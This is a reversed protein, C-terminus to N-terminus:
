AKTPLTLHTYSVAIVIFENKQSLSVSNSLGEIKAGLVYDARKSNDKLVHLIMSSITTKGHSGAIVVRTKNKSYEFIFEPFSYIKIKKHKALKLESNDSKAHMGLIVFDLDDTIKSEYWGLKDPYLDNNILSSKAPEYIIDDSGTVTFGIRKLEIALSHM